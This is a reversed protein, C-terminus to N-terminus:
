EVRAPSSDLARRILAEPTCSKKTCARARAPLPWQISTRDSAATSPPDASGGRLGPRCGPSRSRASRSVWCRAGGPASGSLPGRASPRTGTWFPDPEPLLAFSGVRSDHVIVPHFAYKLGAFLVPWIASTVLPAQSPRSMQMGTASRGSTTRPQPLCAARDTGRMGDPPAAHAVVPRGLSQPPSIAPAGAQPHDPRSWWLGLRDPVRVRRSRGVSRPRGRARMPQHTACM